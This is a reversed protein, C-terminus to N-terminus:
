WLNWAMAMNFSGLKQRQPAITQPEAAHCRSLVPFNRRWKRPLRSGQHKTLDVPSVRQVQQYGPHFMWNPQFNQQFGIFFLLKFTKGVKFPWTGKGFFPWKEDSDVPQDQIKPCAGILQEPFLAENRAWGFQHLAVTGHRKWVKADTSTFPAM